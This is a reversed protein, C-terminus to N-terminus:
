REYVGGNSEVSGSRLLQAHLAWQRLCSFCAVEGNIFIRVSPIAGRRCGPCLPGFVVPTPISKRPLIDSTRGHSNQQNAQNPTTGFDLAKASEKEFSIATKNIKMIQSVEKRQGEGKCGNRWLTLRFDTSDSGLGSTLSLRIAEASNMYVSYVSM